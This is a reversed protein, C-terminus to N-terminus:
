IVYMALAFVQEEVDTAVVVRALLKAFRSALGGVEKAVEAAKVVGVIVRVVVM